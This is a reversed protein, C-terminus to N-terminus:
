SFLLGLICGVIIGTQRNCDTGQFGQSEFLEIVEEEARSPLALSSKSTVAHPTQSATSAWYVNMYLIIFFTLLWLVPHTEEVNQFGM